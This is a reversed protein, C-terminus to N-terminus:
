FEIRGQFEITRGIDASPALGFLPNIVHTGATTTNSITTEPSGFALPTLNTLNLINFFNAQFRILGSHDMVKFAVQKAFTMDLDKYCPGNFSNRGVGPPGPTGYNFYNAGGQPFNGGHEYDGNSCGNLAPGGAPTGFGYQTPRTPAIVSAGNVLAVSPVGVVPTWPYGTHWTFIGNAQWGGLVSKMLGNTNPAPLTWTGLLTIRNRQDFDSPGYEARPNGPDTQNTVFGPGENSANDLSKSWTYVGSFDFGHQLRKELHVNLANYDTHVDATPVYSNNFPSQNVGPTCAGGTACTGNSQNYLFNQNVLRLFHFGSSGQYGTTLSMQYPLAFQLDFSYNYLTPQKMGPLISYTEIQPTSPTGGPPTFANPTGTAPNTGTSLNPNPAYSFPSDSTGYEFVIGTGTADPATAQLGACCLGYNFYGPGNEYAPSIPEEDLNDLSMGIGGHVVMHGGNIMPQWAFGIKPDFGDATTPYLHDTTVLKANILQVGPTSSLVMNNISFGKNSLEGFYEYRIGLNVTLNPRAKWDDQVYGAYYHRRFYRQANGVGGTDPNASIGEYLPADNALDWIGQFAYNPRALGSEDDNDQEDRLQVGIRLSHARLTKTAMDRIEYTNEAALYPTTPSSRISFDVAGFGYNQAYMGPVGWNVQGSTDAIQNDAFRTYNARAENILTPGFTHIYVASASQNFPRFPLQTDPAAGAASDLSAQDLKQTYFGGYLQDKPTMIWDVRGHFQTGRFHSPTQIQAFELDPVGDLGAGTFLNPTGATGNVNNNPLYQGDVGGFSGVDFGTGAPACQTQIATCAGPLVAKVVVQGAPKTVTGAVLGTPRAAALAAYWDPTPVYTESFSQQTSKTAEYSGFWFLKNKVIPGGISGAWDRQQFDNRVPPAFVGPTSTPGGYSQYANLGPEDYQFFLSGHYDNTGAKTVTLIHAGVNRGLTADYNAALVTIQAVSEISPTVITSGGHLLSDVTVGDLEYTNSTVRQGSASIQIQNETQFIGVNSQNQSTNNPLAIAGGSGSRASDGTIGVGTRLLEFPDRGFTPLRTVDDTSITSSVQADSTNLIPTQNGNVTVTESAGGATMKVDLGRPQEATVAVNTFDQAKFGSATVTVTYNGPALENFTYFGTDNTTATKTAQTAPNALKVTAGPIVAGSQDTVTGTLSGGFQAQLAPAMMLLLFALLFALKASANLTFSRISLRTNTSRAERRM